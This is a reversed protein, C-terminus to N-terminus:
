PHTSSSEPMGAVQICWESAVAYANWRASHSLTRMQEFEWRLVELLVLQKLYFQFSKQVEGRYWRLKKTEPETSKLSILLLARSLQGPALEFEFNSRFHQMAKM